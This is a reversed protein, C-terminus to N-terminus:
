EASAEFWATPGTLYTQNDPLDTLPIAKVLSISDGLDKPIAQIVLNGDYLYVLEDRATIELTYPAGGRYFSKGFRETGVREKAWGEDALWAVIQFITTCASM